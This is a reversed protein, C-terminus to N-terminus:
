GFGDDFRVVTLNPRLASLAFACLKTKTQGFFLNLQQNIIESQQNLQSVVQRCDSILFGFDLIWLILGGDGARLAACREARLDFLDKVYSAVGGGFLAEQASAGVGDGARRAFKLRGDSRRNHIM